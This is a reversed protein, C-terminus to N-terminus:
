GQMRAYRKEDMEKAWQASSADIAREREMEAHRERSKEVEVLMHEGWTLRRMTGDAEEAGHPSQFHDPIISPGPTGPPPVWLTDPLLHDDEQHTLVQTRRGDPELSQVVDFNGEKETFNRKIYEQKEVLSKAEWLDQNGGEKRSRIIQKWHKKLEYKNEEIAM